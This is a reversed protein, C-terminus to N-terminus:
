QSRVKRGPRMVKEKRMNLARARGSSKPRLDVGVQVGGMGGPGASGAGGGYKAAAAGSGRPTETWCHKDVIQDLVIKPVIVNEALERYSDRGFSHPVAYSYEYSSPADDPLKSDLITWVPKNKKISM